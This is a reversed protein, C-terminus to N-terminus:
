YRWFSIKLIQDCFEAPKGDRTDNNSQLNLTSLFHLYFSTVNEFYVM